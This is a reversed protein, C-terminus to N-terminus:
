IYIISLIMVDVNRDIKRLNQEDTRGIREVADRWWEEIATLDDLQRAVRVIFLQVDCSAEEKRLLEGLVPQGFFM